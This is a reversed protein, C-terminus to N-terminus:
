PNRRRRVAMAGGAAAVMIALVVVLTVITSDSGDAADTSVDTALDQPTATQTLTPVPADPTATADTAHGGAHGDDDIEVTGTAGSTLEIRVAPDGDEGPRAIWRFSGGGECEQYAALYLQDGASGSTVTLTVPLLIPETSAGGADTWVIAEGDDAVSWGEVEGPVIAVQDTYQLDFRVTPLAAEGGTPRGGDVACGHPIVLQSAVAEGAPIANPNFSPHALATAASALVIGVTLALSRPLLLRSVRTV